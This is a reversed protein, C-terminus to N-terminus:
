LRWRGRPTDARCLRRRPAPRPTSRPSSGQGRSGHEGDSARDRGTLSKNMAKTLPPEGPPSDDAASCLWPWISHGCTHGTCTQLSHATPSPDLWGDRSSSFLHTLVASVNSVSSSTSRPSQSVAARLGCHNSDMDRERNLFDRSSLHQLSTWHTGDRNINIDPECHPTHPSRCEDGPLPARDPHHLGTVRTM